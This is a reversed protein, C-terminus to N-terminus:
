KCIVGGSEAYGDTRGLWDRFSWHGNTDFTLIGDKLWYTVYRKTNNPDSVYTNSQVIASVISDNLEDHMLLRKGISQCYSQAGYWSLYGWTCNLGADAPRCFSKLEKASPFYYMTGDILIKRPNAKECINPTLGVVCSKCYTIEWCDRANCKQNDIDWDECWCQTETKIDEEKCGSCYLQGFTGGYNCFYGEPCGREDIIDCPTSEEPICQGLFNCSGVLGGQKCPTGEPLFSLIKKGSEDLECAMCNSLSCDTEEEDVVCEGDKVKWGEDCVCVGYKSTAHEIGDCDGQKIIVDPCSLSGCIYIGISSVGQANSTKHHGFITGGAWVSCSFLVSLGFLFYSKKVM